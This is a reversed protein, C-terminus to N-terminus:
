FDWRLSASTPAVGFSLGTRTNSGKTTIAYWILGGAGALVLAGGVIFTVDSATALTSAADFDGQLSPPCPGGCREKLDNTRSVALGGTVAGAILSAGGLGFGGAMLLIPGLTKPTKRSPPPPPPLPPAVGPAAGGLVVVVEKAEREALTVSATTAPLGPSTAVITHSGPNLKRPADTQLVPAPAGDISLTTLTRDGGVLRITLSPIRGELDSALVAGDARCRAQFPDEGKQVPARTAELAHDRAEVLRGQKALVRALFLATSPVHVLNNADRFLAEATALDGRQEAQVGRDFLGRATERDAASVPRPAGQALADRAPSALASAIALSAVVLSHALAHRSPAPM